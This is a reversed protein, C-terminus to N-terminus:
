YMVYIHLIYFYINELRVSLMQTETNNLEAPPMKITFTMVLYFINFLNGIVFFFNFLMQIKQVFNHVTWHETKTCTNWIAYCESYLELFEYRTNIMIIYVIVYGIVRIFKGIYDM